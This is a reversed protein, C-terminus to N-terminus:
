RGQARGTRRTSASRKTRAAPTEAPADKPPLTESLDWRSILADLRNLLELQRQEIRELQGRLDDNGMDGNRAFPDPTEEITPPATFFEAVPIGLNEALKELNSQHPLREGSEWRQWQRTSVNANAAAIEQPLQGKADEPRANEVRYRLLRERIQRQQAVAQALLRATEEREKWAKKTTVTSVDQRDHVTGRFTADRLV